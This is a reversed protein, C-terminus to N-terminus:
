TKINVEVDSWISDEEKKTVTVQPDTAILETSGEEKTVDAFVSEAVVASGFLAIGLTMLKLTKM